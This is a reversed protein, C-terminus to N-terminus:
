RGPTQPKRFSTSARGGPETSGSQQAKQKKIIERKLFNRMLRYQGAEYIGIHFRQLQGSGDQFSCIERVGYKKGRERFKDGLADRYREEVITGYVERIPIANTYSIIRISDTRDLGTLLSDTTGTAVITSIFTALEESSHIRKVDPAAAASAVRGLLLIFCLLRATM